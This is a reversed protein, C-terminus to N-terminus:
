APALEIRVQPASLKSPCNSRQGTWPNVIAIPLPSPHIGAAVLGAFHAMDVILYAGVSDAIERFKAFDIIRPYASAGAIIMKPKHELAKAALADYDIREDEQKVGYGVVNYLKGSFNLKHGHTLHGGHALDMGLITDGPNLVSRFLV